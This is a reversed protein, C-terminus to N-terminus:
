VLQKGFFNSLGGIRTKIEVPSISDTVGYRPLKFLHTVNARFCCTTSATKFGCEQALKYERLGAEQRTGFPYAFHEVPHELYSEM